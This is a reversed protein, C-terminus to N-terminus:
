CILRTLPLSCRPVGPWRSRGPRSPSRWTLMVNAPKLDRHIVGQRHAASLAEAIESGITLAQELPLPGKQLREALTEGALHEMVLYLAGDHEGVDHLSCIHPHSLGAITFSSPALPDPVLVQPPAAADVDQAV